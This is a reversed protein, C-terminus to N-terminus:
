GLNVHAKLKLAVLNNEAARVHVCVCACAGLEGMKRGHVGRERHLGAASVLLIGARELAGLVCVWKCACVFVCLFCVRVGVCRRLFAPPPLLM